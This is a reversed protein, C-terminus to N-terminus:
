VSGGRENALKRLARNVANLAQQDAHIRRALAMVEETPKDRTLLWLIGCIIAIVVWEAVITPLYIVSTTDSSLIFNFGMGRIEGSKLYIAFPPFLMTAIVSALAGKLIRRQATNM